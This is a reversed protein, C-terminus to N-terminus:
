FRCFVFVRSEVHEDSNLKRQVVTHLFDSFGDGFVYKLKKYSPEKIPSKEWAYSRILFEFLVLSIEKSISFNFFFTASRDLKPNYVNFSYYSNNSDSGFSGGIKKWFRKYEESVDDLSVKECSAEIGMSEIAQLLDNNYTM